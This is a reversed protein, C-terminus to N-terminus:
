RVRGEGVPLKASRGKERLRTVIISGADLGWLPDGNDYESYSAPPRLSGSMSAVADWVYEQAEQVKAKSPLEFSVKFVVRRVKRKRKM